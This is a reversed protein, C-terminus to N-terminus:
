AGVTRLPDPMFLLVFLVLGIVALARHWFGLPEIDNLPAPHKPGILLIMAGWILWSASQTVGLVACLALMGYALWDAWRGLLAYAVHGGDLQGVPLMNIMTVLLGIWAAMAVANLQVDAGGATPLWQGHVAYKLLAYLISNGEQLYGHALMDPTPSAVPSTALGYLLLPIAVALGALPGAVGIELVSRRDEMPERQVIVAGMTGTFTIIGFPTPIPPIPIFYPLSVPAQRLRGVVYHGMEHAFLIGMLTAAFPLGGLLLGPSALLLGPSAALEPHASIAGTLLVTALTLVFLLAPLGLRPPTRVVVGPMALLEHQGHDRRLFPTFGVQEVRARIQRYGAASTDGVAGRLLLSGRADWSWSEIEMLGGLAASVHAAANAQETQEIAAGM